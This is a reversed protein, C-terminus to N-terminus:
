FKNNTLCFIVLIRIIFYVLLSSRKTEKYVQLVSKRKSNKKFM